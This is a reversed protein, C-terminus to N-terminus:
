DIKERMVIRDEDGFSFKKMFVGTGVAIAAAPTSLKVLWGKIKELSKDLRTVLTPDGAFAISFSLISIVILIFLVKKLM